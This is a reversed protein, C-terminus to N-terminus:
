SAASSPSPRIRPWHAPRQAAADPLVEAWPQGKGPGAPTPGPRGAARRQALLAPALTRSPGAPREPECGPIEYM